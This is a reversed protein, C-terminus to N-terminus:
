TSPVAASVAPLLLRHAIAFTQLKCHVSIASCQEHMHSSRQAEILVQAQAGPNGEGVHLLKRGYKGCSACAGLPLDQLFRCGMGALSRGSALWEAVGLEAPCVVKNM